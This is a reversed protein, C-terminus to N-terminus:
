DPLWPQLSSFHTTAVQQLLYEQFCVMMIESCLVLFRIGPTCLNELVLPWMLIRHVLLTIHFLSGCIDPVVTCSKSAWTVQHVSHTCREGIGNMNQVWYKSILDQMHCAFSLIKQWACVGVCAMLNVRWHWVNKFACLSRIKCVSLLVKRERVSKKEM